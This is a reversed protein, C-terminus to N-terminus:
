EPDPQTPTPAPPLRAAVYVIQTCAENTTVSGTRFVGEVTACNTITGGLPHRTRYYGLCTLSEGLGLTLPEPCSWEDLMPDHILFPGDIAVNGTNTVAFTYTILQWHLTYTAPTASQELLLSPSHDLLVEFDATATVDHDARAVATNRIAMAEVDAMTTTYSGSCEMTEGPELGDDPCIVTVMDDQITIPGELSGTGSNEVVYTYAIEEDAWLFVASEASKTLRISHMPGSVTFSDEASVDYYEYVTGGCCGASEGSEVKFTGEVRADNSLSGREIDAQTIVHNGTCTMQGSVAIETSPCFVDVQNAELEVSYLLYDSTNRVDYAYAIEEGVRAYTTPSGSITLHIYRDWLPRAHSDRVYIGGFVIAVVIGSFLFIRLSRAKVM